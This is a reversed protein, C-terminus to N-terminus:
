HQNSAALRKQNVQGSWFQNLADFIELPHLFLQRNAGHDLYRVSVWDLSQAPDYEVGTITIRPIELIQDPVFLHHELLLMRDPTLWLIGPVKLLANRRQHVKAQFLLREQPGLNVNKHMEGLMSASYKARIRRPQDGVVRTEM